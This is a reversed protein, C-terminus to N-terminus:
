PLTELTAAVLDPDGLLMWFRDGSSYTYMDGAGFIDFEDEDVAPEHYRTVSKDGIQTEEVETEESMEATFVPLLAEPVAVEDAGGLQFGFVILFGGTEEDAVSWAVTTMDDVSIGAADAVAQIQEIDDPRPPDQGSVGDIHEQGQITMAEVPIGGVEEPVYELISAPDSTEDQGVAPAGILLAAGLALTLATRIRPLTHPTM